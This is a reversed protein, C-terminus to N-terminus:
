TGGSARGREWFYVEGVLRAEGEVIPRWKELMKQLGPHYADSVLDDVQWEADTGEFVFIAEAESLFVAHREFDTDELDFPPGQAILEAARARAGEKLQVIVAARRM